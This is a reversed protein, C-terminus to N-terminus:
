SSRSIGARKLLDAPVGVKRWTSYSIGKNDSYEKASAVFGAELEALNDVASDALSRLKSEIDEVLQIALLKATGVATEAEDRAAALRKELDDKSVKRGRKPRVGDLATLYANITRAAQRGSAMAAKHSDSVTRKPTSSGNSPMAFNYTVDEPVFPLPAVSCDDENPYSVRENLLGTTSRRPLSCIFTPSM